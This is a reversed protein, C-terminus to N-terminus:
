TNIGWGGLLKEMRAVKLKISAHCKGKQLFVLGHPEVFYVIQQGIGVM